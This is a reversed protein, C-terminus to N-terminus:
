VDRYSIAILLAVVVAVVGLNKLHLLKKPMPHPVVVAVVAVVGNEVGLVIVV